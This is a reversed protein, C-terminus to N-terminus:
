VIKPLAILRIGIIHHPNELKEDETIQTLEELSVSELTMESSFAVDALVIAEPMYSLSIETDTWKATTYDHMYM